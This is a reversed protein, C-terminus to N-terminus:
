RCNVRVNENKNFEWGKQGGPRRAQPQQGATLGPQQPQVVQVRDDGGVGGGHVLVEGAVGLGLRRAVGSALILLAVM